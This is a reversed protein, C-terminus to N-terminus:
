RATEVDNIATIYQITFTLRAIGVPQEADGSFDIDTGTLVASKALSNVTFDDAIANEIQVAINDVDRDFNDTVKVYVDVSVDLNRMLTRAGITQLNSVEQGTYVTVAPLSGETLPYVRSKYVRRRVLTAGSTIVQAIRDRIQQRVHAM